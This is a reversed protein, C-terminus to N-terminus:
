NVILLSLSEIQFSFHYLLDLSFGVARLSTPCQAAINHLPEKIKSNYFFGMVQITIPCRGLGFAETMIDTRIICVDGFETM